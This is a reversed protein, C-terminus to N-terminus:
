SFASLIGLYGGVSIRSSNASFNDAIEEAPPLYEFTTTNLAAAAFFLVVTVLGSLPSLKELRSEKM